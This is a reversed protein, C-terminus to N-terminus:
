LIDYRGKDAPPRSAYIEGDYIESEPKLVVSKRPGKQVIVRDRDKSAPPFSPDAGVEDLLKALTSKLRMEGDKIDSTADLQVTRNDFRVRIQRSSTARDGM